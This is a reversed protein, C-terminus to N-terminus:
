CTGVQELGINALLRRVRPAADPGVRELLSHTMRTGGAEAIRKLLDLKAGSPADSAAELIILNDLLGLNQIVEAAGNRVFGDPHEVCRMLIPWVDTGMAELSQKAATRVWWDADGLLEAVASAADARELEGLARVAHARVFPTSDHLLRLAVDTAIAGGVRSLSQVAAKRVRPDRDDALRALESEVWGTEPYGALLTAGWFRVTADSDALLPRYVEPPCHRAHELHVAIRSAPHRQEKLAGILIEVARPDSSTGLLAFAVAAVDADAGAVARSLLDYIRPHGQNFLVTLSATRRWVDRSLRHSTADRVLIYEGWRDLLYRTLVSAAARPTAPDAATHLVMDRSVRELLPRVRALRADVPAGALEDLMLEGIVSSAIGRAARRRADIRAVYFALAGWVLVAFVAGSLLLAEFMM